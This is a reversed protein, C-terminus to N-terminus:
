GPDIDIVAMESAGCDVQRTVQNPNNMASNPNSITRCATEDTQGVRVTV